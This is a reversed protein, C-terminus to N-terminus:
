KLENIKKDISSETQKVMTKLDEDNLIDSLKFIHRKSQTKRNTWAGIRIERFYLLKCKMSCFNKNARLLIDCHKCHYKIFTFADETINNYKAMVGAVLFIYNKTNIHWFCDIAICLSCNDDPLLIDNQVKFSKNGM